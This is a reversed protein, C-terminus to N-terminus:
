QMCTMEIAHVVFNITRLLSVNSQEDDSLYELAEDFATASLGAVMDPPPNLSRFFDTLESAEERDVTLDSYIHRYFNVVQGEM